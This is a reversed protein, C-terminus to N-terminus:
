DEHIDPNCESITDVDIDGLLNVDAMRWYDDEYRINTRCIICVATGEPGGHPNYKLRVQGWDHGNKPLKRVADNILASELAINGTVSM